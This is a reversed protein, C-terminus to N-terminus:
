ATTDPGGNRDLLRSWALLAFPGMVLVSMLASAGLIAGVGIESASVGGGFVIAILPVMTEPLATGIAALVSGIAGEGLELKHGFWEIGNTFLEAGALIVAFAVALFVVDM